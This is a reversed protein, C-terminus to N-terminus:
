PRYYDPFRVVRGSNTKKLTSENQDTTPAQAEKESHTIEEPYAPSGSSHLYAPKLRDITVTSETGKVMLKFTKPGRELVKYPGSYPPELSPTAPGQRLFVYEATQLDKPIYFTKTGHWTAPRPTLNAMHRRLRSAFDKIDATFDPSPVFFEGPLRLPEGYVLEATSTKLDEKWASRIGLLVLPLIETWQPNNHCRIATKIQRHLREVMGNSQPHYSTTTTVKAGILSSVAQFLKSEFQRGRDTTIKQPCGFRAVWGSIFTKACTEATIEELPYAEPWRTYRDIVTLCYRYCSSLPLPGVIDMHIHSFRQSPTPFTSYPSSTHRNIKSRQCDTCQKTWEKCDRRVGPWVFRESVLKATASAGPHSLNHMQSFVQRRFQPTIYPRPTHTSVDCYITAEPSKIKELRLATGKNILNQLEPDSNQDNALDEYNLIESIAEIRSLADAVTNDCGSVHKIDTTFQSIFSLYRHQRPSCNDRKTVFAFTIPKHDTYVTFHRAEVMFRFYKISEYIALLERDYPSYKKQASTLKRSFFALPEWCNKVKQQLVAGIAKDSADTYLSLGAHPNPHALMTADSLSSKGDEFAKLMEPTMVIPKSGKINKGCLADLLPAQTSAADKLCRRYYNLMGLFRRLERTTKPIPFDKIAAVKTEMPRTGQVSIHYGLFDVEKVGLISKFTNILVGYKELRRFLTKLHEMHEEESHSFILIDDLYGFTFDLGQLVEDIFRQFTQAANRLGFMMFPFEFLGFPTTIATKEIDSEVVPIQNYAKVLDLKSYINCGALQHAFDQINRLPYRDPITRANLSRYDGCPRWGDDKKRMLHLASSWSSESRRATGNKLM